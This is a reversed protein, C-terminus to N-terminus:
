MRKGRETKRRLYAAKQAEIDVSYSASIEDRAILRKGMKDASYLAEKSFQM